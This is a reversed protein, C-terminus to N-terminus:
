EKMSELYELFKEKDRELIRCSGGPVVDRRKEEDVFIHFPIVPTKKNGQQKKCLAEEEYNGYVEESLNCSIHMVEKDSKDSVKSINYAVNHNNLVKDMFPILEKDIIKVLM